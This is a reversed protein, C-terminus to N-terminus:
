ALIVLLALPVLPFLCLVLQARSALSLRLPSPSASAFLRSFFAPQRQDLVLFQNLQNRTTISTALELHPHLEVSSHHGRSSHRALPRSVQVATRSSLHLAVRIERDHLPVPSWQVFIDLKLMCPPETRSPVGKARSLSTSSRTDSCCSSSGTWRPSTCAHLFM